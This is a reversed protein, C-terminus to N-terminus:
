GASHTDGILGTDWTVHCKPCDYLCRYRYTDPIFDQRFILVTGCEPCHKRHLAIALVAPVLIVAFGFVAALLGFLWHSAHLVGFAVALVICGLELAVFALARKLPMKPLPREQTMRAFDGFTPVSRLPRGLAVSDGVSM